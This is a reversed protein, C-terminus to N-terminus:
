NILIINFSCMCQAYRITFTALGADNVVFSNYPGKLTVDNWEKATTSNFSFIPYKPDIGALVTVNSSSTYLNSLAFQVYNPNTYDPYSVITYLCPGAAGTASLDTPLAYVGAITSRLDLQLVNSYTQCNKTHVERIRFFISGRMSTTSLIQISGTKSAYHYPFSSNSPQKITDM